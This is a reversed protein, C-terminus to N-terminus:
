CAPLPHEEATPSDTTWPAGTFRTGSFHLDDILLAREEPTAAEEILENLLRTTPVGDKGFFTKAVSFTYRMEVTGAANRGLYQHLIISLYERNHDVTDYLGLHSVVNGLCYAAMRGRDMEARQITHEHNCVIADAGQKFLWRFLRRTKLMPEARHQGGEHPYAVFVDPQEREKMQRIKKAIDRLMFWSLQRIEYAKRTTVDTDCGIRALHYYLRKYRYYAWRALPNLLEHEQTMNLYYRQTWSLRNRNIQANTGYTSAFLAVKIGDKELIAYTPDGLRKSAGVSVLGAERVCDLTEMLGHFGQDLSHNNSVSVHTIGAQKLQHAVKIPSIFRGPKVVYGERDINHTIPSELNAVAFDAKAFLGKLEKLHEIDVLRMQDDRLPMVDGIYTIKM